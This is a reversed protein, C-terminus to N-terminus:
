WLSLSDPGCKLLARYNRSDGHEVAMGTPRQTLITAASLEQCVLVRSTCLLARGLASSVRYHVFCIRCTEHEPPEECIVLDVM